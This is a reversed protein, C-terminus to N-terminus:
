GNEDGKQGDPDVGTELERREAASLQWKIAAWEKLEKSVLILQGRTLMRSSVLEGITKLAAM